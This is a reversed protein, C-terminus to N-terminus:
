GNDNLTIRSMRNGNIVRSNIEFWDRMEVIREPLPVVIGDPLYKKGLRMYKERASDHYPLIDIKNL